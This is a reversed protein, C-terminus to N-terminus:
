QADGGKESQIPPAPPTQDANANADNQGGRKGLKGIIQSFFLIFAAFYVIVSTIISIIQSVFGYSQMALGGVTLYAMLIGTFIIAIPNSMGLLAVAIGDFGQQALESGVAIGTGAGALYNLGGGIGSLAGAIVMALVVNRKESIGAYKAADKNFGCAKLEYGLKTKSLIVWVVIALLIAVLIGANVSSPTGVDAVFIKDFGLKPLNAGDVPRLSQNKTRDFIYARILVNSTSMGIYNMMICTIVENINCYAKLLGPVVGWLAGMLCAALIAVLCHIGGPLFTWKVGVYVAAFAGMMFQGPGGINFLGTRKAFGVSLGTMILPTAYYLVQGVNKMDQVGGTMIAGLGKLAMSSDTILLIVFGVLMGILIAILAALVNQVGTHQLPNGLRKEKM